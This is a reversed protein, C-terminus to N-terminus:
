VSIYMGDVTFFGGDIVLRTKGDFTPLPQQVRNTVGGGVIGTSVNLVIEDEQEAIINGTYGLDVKFSYFNSDGLEEIEPFNLARLPVNNVKFGDLVAWAGYLYAQRATILDIELRYRQYFNETLPYLRSDGDYNEVDGEFFPRFKGIIRNKFQIGSQFVLGGRNRISSAEILLFDENDEEKKILESLWADGDIQDFAFGKEIVIRATNTIQSINFYFEFLNYPQVNRAVQIKGETLSTMANILFYGRALDESYGTEDITFTGLTDITVIQGTQVWDPTFQTHESAGIVTTTNPEYENGGDFYVATKGDIQFFKCDVKEQSGLNEQVMVPSLDFRTGTCDHLTIIHYPYSSKFQIGVRDKENFSQAIDNKIGSLENFSLTNDFNKKVGENFEVYESFILPNLKNIEFFRPNETEIADQLEEITFKKSVACGYIDRIWLSYKGPLVGPFANSTQYNSGSSALFNDISYELPSVGLIPNTNEIVLDSYTNFQTKVINFEGSALKRPIIISKSDEQLSSDVVRINATTANRSLNFDYSSGDWNSQLISSGNYLTFNSTGGIVSASYGIVDCDGTSLSQTISLSPPTVQTTNNITFNFVKIKNGSYSGSQFIGNQATILVTQGSLLALLNNAGGVNKYDRNFASAYSSAQVENVPFDTSYIIERFRGSTLGGLFLTLSIDGLGNNFLVTVAGDTFGPTQLVEFDFAITSM